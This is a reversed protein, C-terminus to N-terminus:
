FKFRIFITVLHQALNHDFAVRFLEELPVTGLQTESIALLNVDVITATLYLLYIDVGSSCRVIEDVVRTHQEDVVIHLVYARSAHAILVRKLDLAVDLEDIQIIEELFSNLRVNVLVLNSFLVLFVRVCLFLHCKENGNNTKTSIEDTVSVCCVGWVCVCRIKKM